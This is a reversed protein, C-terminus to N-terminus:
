GGTKVLMVLLSMIFGLFVGGLIIVPWFYVKDELKIGQQTKKM